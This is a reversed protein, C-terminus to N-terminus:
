LVSERPSQKKRYETAFFYATGPLLRKLEWFFKTDFLVVRMLTKKSTVSRADRNFRVFLYVIVIGSM